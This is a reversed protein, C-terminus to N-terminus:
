MYGDLGHVVCFVGAVGSVFWSFWDFQTDDLPTDPLDLGTEECSFM